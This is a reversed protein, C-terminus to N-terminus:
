SFRPDFYEEYIEVMYLHEIDEFDEDRDEHVGVSLGLDFPAAEDLSSMVRMPLSGQPM